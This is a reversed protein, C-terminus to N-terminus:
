EGYKSHKAKDTGNSGRKEIVIRTILDILLMKMTMLSLTIHMAVHRRTKLMFMTIMWQIYIASQVQIM